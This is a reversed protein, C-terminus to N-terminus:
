IRLLLRYSVYIRGYKTTSASPASEASDASKPLRPRAAAMMMSARDSAAARRPRTAEPGDCVLQGQEEDAFNPVHNPLLWHDHGDFRRKEGSDM